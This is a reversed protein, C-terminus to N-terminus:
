ICIYIMHLIAHIILSARKKIQRMGPGVDDCDKQTSNGKSFAEFARQDALGPSLCCCCCCVADNELMLRLIDAPQLVPQLLM